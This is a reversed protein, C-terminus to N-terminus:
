EWSRIDDDSLKGDPGFSYVGVATRVKGGPVKIEGDYDADLIVQYPSGWPDLLRAKAKDDLDVSGGRGDKAPITEIFKLERPNLDDDNHGVLVRILYGKTELKLDGGAAKGFPLKGFELQYLSIANKLNRCEVKAKAKDARKKFPNLTPKSPAEGKDDAYCLGGLLLCAALAYIVTKM